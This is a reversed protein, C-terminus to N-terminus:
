VFGQYRLPQQRDLVAHLKGGYLYEFALVNMEAFGFHETVFHSVTMRKPSYATGRVVPSTELKIQTQGNDVIIRTDHDGGGAIRQVQIHKRQNIAVMIRGLTVDMDKLSTARDSISLYTLDIDVSLRPLDRYFLNIATGGKLAFVKEKAIDSLIGLLLRVQNTYRELM